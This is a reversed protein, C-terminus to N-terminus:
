EPPQITTNGHNEKANGQHSIIKLVKECAKHGDLYRGKQFAKEVRKNIKKLQTAESISKWPM